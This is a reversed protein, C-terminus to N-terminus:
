LSFYIRCFYVNHLFLTDQLTEQNFFQQFLFYMYSESILYDKYRFFFFCVFNFVTYCAYCLYIKFLDGTSKNFILLTLM